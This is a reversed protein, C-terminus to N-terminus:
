LKFVHETFIHIRNFKLESEVQLNTKTTQRYRSFFSWNLKRGFNFCVSERSVIIVASCKNETYLIDAVSRTMLSVQFKRGQVNKLILKKDNWTVNEEVITYVTEEFRTM